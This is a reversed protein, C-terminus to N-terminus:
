DGTFPSIGDLITRAQRRCDDLTESSPPLNEDGPIGKPANARVFAIKDFLGLVKRAEINAMAYREQAWFSRASMLRLRAVDEYAKIDWPRRGVISEILEDVNEESHVAMLAEIYRVRIGHNSPALVSARELRNLGRRVLEPNETEWGIRSELRGLGDLIQPDIPAFRVAASLIDRATEYQDNRVASRAENSFRQGVALSGAALTSFLMVFTLIWLVTRTKRNASLDIPATKGATAGFFAMLPFLLAGFSLDVDLASHLGLALLAWIMAALQTRESGGSQRLARTSRRLFLFWLALYSALALVGGEIALLVIGSHPDNMIYGYSSFQRYQCLWAGGGRGFPSHLFMKGADNLVYLRRQDASKNPALTRIQRGVGAPMLRPAFGVGMVISLVVAGLVLWKKANGSFRRLILTSVALLPGVSLALLLGLIVPTWFDALPFTCGIRPGIQFGVFLGVGMVALPGLKSTIGTKRASIVYGLIVVPLLLWALRSDTAILCVMNLYLVISYLHSSKRPRAEWEGFALVSASLIYIAFVNAYGFSSTLAHHVVYEDFHLVGGGVLLGLLSVVGSSAVWTSVVASRFWPKRGATAALLYVVLSAEVWLFGKIAEHPNFSFLVPLGYSIAMVLLVFSDERPLRTLRDGWFLWCISSFGLICLTALLRTQSEFIGNPYPSVLLLFLVAAAVVSLGAHLEISKQVPPPSDINQNAM